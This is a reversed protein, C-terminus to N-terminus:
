KLKSGLRWLVRFVLFVGAAAIGLFVLHVPQLLDFM